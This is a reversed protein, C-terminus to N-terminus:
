DSAAAELRLRPYGDPPPPYAQEPDARTLTTWLLVCNRVIRGAIDEGPVVRGNILDITEGEIYGHTINCFDEAEAPDIRSGSVATFAACLWAKLRIVTAGIDDPVVEGHIPEASLFRHLGPNDQAFSALNTVLQRLYEPQPMSDDLDSTLCGAYRQLARRTAEWLLDDFSAFYNYANTHHCGVRRAVQRLDVGQSGGQEIILAMTEEVFREKTPGSSTRKTVEDGGTIVM